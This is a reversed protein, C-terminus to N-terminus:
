KNLKLKRLMAGYKEDMELISKTTEQPSKYIIAHDVKACGKIFEPDQLGKKFAQHLTEVIEPSLGKPGLIMMLNPCSDPYGYETITPVDPFSPNRNEEYTALLRLRGALIQPKVLMTASYAEVHGGMLAAMAAPGGQFPIHVWNIGLRKALNEMVIHQPAGPGSSSFRIKGPNAKAYDLFERLSKWPSNAAVVLGSLYDAYQMIYTFDKRMDYSVKRLHQSVMGSLTAQGIVYGDPKELKLLGLGVAAAGGPHYEIVIPQGLNSSAATVLPRLSIDTGGGAPWPMIFRIPRAPYNSDAGFAHGALLALCFLSIAGFAGFRLYNKM